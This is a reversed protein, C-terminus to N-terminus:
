AQVMVFARLALQIRAAADDFAFSTGAIVRAVV